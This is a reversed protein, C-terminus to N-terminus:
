TQASDQATGPNMTVGERIICDSGVTLSTLEGSYKLDQPEHGISAFPFIRARPGIRTQGTLVVHSQLRSGEGLEVQPGVHCLPGIRVGAGLKAGKEVIATPHILTEGSM